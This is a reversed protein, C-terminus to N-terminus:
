FVIIMGVKKMACQNVDSKECVKKVCRYAECRINEM